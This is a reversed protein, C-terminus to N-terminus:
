HLRGLEVALLGVLAKVADVDNMVANEDNGGHDGVHVGLEFFLFVFRFFFASFRADGRLITRINNGLELLLLALLLSEVKGKELIVGRVVM